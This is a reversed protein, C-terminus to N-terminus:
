SEGECNLGFSRIFRLREPCGSKYLMSYCLLAYGSRLLLSCGDILTVPLFVMVQPPEQHNVSPSPM